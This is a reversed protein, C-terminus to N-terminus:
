GAFDPSTPLMAGLAQLWAAITDGFAFLAAAIVLIVFAAVVGYEIAIAGDENRFKATLNRILDMLM